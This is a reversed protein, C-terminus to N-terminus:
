EIVEIIEIDPPSPLPPLYIGKALDKFIIKTSALTDVKLTSFKYSEKLILFLNDLEIPEKDTGYLSCNVLKNKFQIQIKCTVADTYNASYSKEIKSWDILNVKNIIM